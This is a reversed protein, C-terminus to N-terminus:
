NGKVHKVDSKFIYDSKPIYRNIPCYLVEVGDINYSDYDRKKNRVNFVNVLKIYNHVVVVRHGQKVWEKTFYHVARTATSDRDKFPYHNTFVLINMVIE